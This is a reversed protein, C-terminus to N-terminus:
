RHYGLVRDAPVAYCSVDWCHEAHARLHFSYRDSLAAIKLPVRWLHDSTHYVCVALVPTHASISRRAGDLADLEAGEVDMKSLTPPLEAALDDIAAIDVEFTGARDVGSGATGTAAFRAKARAAGVAVPEIRIKERTAAPLGASWQEFRARNAPDPECAHVRRFADGRVQLFRRVTDGDFAGCDVLVEDPLYRYLDRPFYESARMEPTQPTVVRDFDLFLRSRLQAVFAARNEPGTMLAFGRRVDAAQDFIARPHELCGHPLLTEPHHAFLWAYPVVTVGLATLQAWPRSTNYTAIVFAASDCYRLAAEDPSLVAIGDIHSGHLHPANDAIAVPRIGAKALGALTYRGLHGAGFLVIREGKTGTARDWQARQEAVVVDPDLALLSELTESSPSV